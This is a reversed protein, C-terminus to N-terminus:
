DLEKGFSIREEVTYGIKQYFTIAEANGARVQLNLKKCGLAKLASEAHNMLAAAIGNGRLKPHSSVKHVWGRVGDFGAIVTGVIQKEFEAVFFLEGQVTLKTAILQHFENRSPENPFALAWLAVVGAEDETQFPRIEIKM